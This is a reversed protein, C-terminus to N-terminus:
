ARPLGREGRPPRGRPVARAGRRTGTGRTRTGTGPREPPSPGAGRSRTRARPRRARPRRARAERRCSARRPIEREKGHEFGQGVPERMGSGDYEEEADEEVKEDERHVVHEFGDSAARSRPAGRPPAGRREGALGLELGEPLPEVRVKEEVAQVRDRGEVGDPRLPARSTRGGRRSGGSSARCTPASRSGAEPLARREHAAVERDLFDAEAVAEPSRPGAVVGVSSTATGGSRRCGSTSFATLCPMPARRSPPTRSERTVLARPRGRKSRADLVGGVGSRLLGGARSRDRSRSVGRPPTSPRRRAHRRRGRSRGNGRRSRIARSTRLGKRAPGASDERRPKAEARHRARPRRLARARGEHTLKEGGVGVDPDHGLARVAELRDSAIASVLGSM